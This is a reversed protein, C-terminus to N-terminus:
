GGWAAWGCMHMEVGTGSPTKTCQQFTRTSSQTWGGGLGCWACQALDCLGQMHVSARSVQNTCESHAWWRGDVELLMGCQVQVETCVRPGAASGCKSTGM